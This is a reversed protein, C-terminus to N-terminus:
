ASSSGPEDCCPHRCAARSVAPSKFAAITIASMASAPDTRLVTTVTNPAGRELRPTVRLLGQVSVALRKEGGGVFQLGSQVVNELERATAFDVSRSSTGCCGARVTSVSGLHPPGVEGHALEAVARELENLLVDAVVGRALAGRAMSLVKYTKACNEPQVSIMRRSTWYRRKELSLCVRSIPRRRWSM